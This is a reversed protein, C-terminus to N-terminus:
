YLIVSNFDVNINTGGLANLFCCFGDATKAGQLFVGDVHEEALAPLVLTQAEFTGHDHQRQVVQQGAFDPRGVGEEEVAFLGDSM